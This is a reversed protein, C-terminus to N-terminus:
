AMDMDSELVEVKEEELDEPDVPIGFRTASFYLYPVCDRLDIEELQFGLSGGQMLLRDVKIVHYTEGKKVWKSTPVDNPRHNDNICIVKFPLKM